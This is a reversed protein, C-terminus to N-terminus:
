IFIDRVGQFGREVRDHPRINQYTVVSVWTAEFDNRETFARRVDMNVKDFVVPRPNTVNHYTQFRVKSSNAATGFADLDVLSWYPSLSPDNLQNRLTGYNYPWNQYVNNTFRIM